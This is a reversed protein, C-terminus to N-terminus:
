AIEENLLRIVEDHLTSNTAVISNGKLPSKGYWDTIKGGAGEVIPILAMIDWVSMMADLMIDAYGTALLYYGHCDGWTRFMRARKSLKEFGAGTRFKHADWVGSGLLTAQEVSACPRVCVQQGNLWTKGNAGLLYEGLIPQNIVGLIPHGQELLAILTGFLPTGTIFSKTGDIPDLVWQYEAHPNHVGFEEGLIGHQPFSEMILTRMTEEAQKDAITVPSLDAKEDVKVNTRYYKKIIEASADALQRAFQIYEDM